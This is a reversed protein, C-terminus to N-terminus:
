VGVRDIHYQREVPDGKDRQLEFVLVLSLGYLVADPLEFVVSIGLFKTEAEIM